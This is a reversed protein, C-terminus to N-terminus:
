PQVLKSMMPVVKFAIQALIYMASIVAVAVKLDRRTIAAQEEIATGAAPTSRKERELRELNDLRIRHEADSVEGKGVRGNLVDLRATIGTFGSQIQDSLTDRVDHLDDKNVVENGM